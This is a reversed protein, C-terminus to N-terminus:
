QIKFIFSDRIGLKGELEKIKLQLDKDTGIEASDFSKWYENVDVQLNYLKYFM